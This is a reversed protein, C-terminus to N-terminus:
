EKQRKNYKEYDSKKIPRYILKVMEILKTASELADEDSIDEGFEKKYIKKFEKLQESSIM